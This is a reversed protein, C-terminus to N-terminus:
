STKIIDEALRVMAAGTGGTSRMRAKVILIQDEHRVKDKLGNPDLDARTQHFVLAQRLEQQSLDKPRSNECCM